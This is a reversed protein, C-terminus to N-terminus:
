IGLVGAAEDSLPREDGDWDALGLCSLAWKLWEAEEVFDDERKRCEGYAMGLCLDGSHWGLLGLINLLGRSCDRVTRKEGRWGM